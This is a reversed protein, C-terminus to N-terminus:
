RNEAAQKRTNMQERIRSLVHGAVFWTTEFRIFDLVNADWMVVLSAPFEEDSNWFRLMMPLFPFVWFGFAADGGSEKRGGLRECAQKFLETERDIAACVQQFLGGGLNSGQLMGTLERATVFRGSLSCNDKSCCLVDYISMAENYGAPCCRVFGDETWEVAGTSRSIRYERGVFPLYLYQGDHRLNFKRIMGEQDYELFKRQMKEKMYEYNDRHKM